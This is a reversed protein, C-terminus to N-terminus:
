ELRRLLDALAAPLPEALTAAYARQLSEAIGGAPLKRPPGKRRRGVVPLNRLPPASRDDGMM